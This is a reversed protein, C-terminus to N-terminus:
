ACGARFGAPRATRIRGPWWRRRGPGPTAGLADGVGGRGAPRVAERDGHAAAAVGYECACDAKRGGGGRPPHRSRDFLRSGGSRSRRRPGSVAGAIRGHRVRRDGDAQLLRVGAVAPLRQLAAAVAVRGPGTGEGDDCGRCSGPIRGRSRGGPRAGPVAPCVARAAVRQIEEPAEVAGRRVPGGTAGTPRAGGDGAALARLRPAAAPDAAPQGGGQGQAAAYKPPLPVGIESSTSCRNRLFHFVSEPFHFVSEPFHFVSKPPLPVRNPTTFARRYGSQSM